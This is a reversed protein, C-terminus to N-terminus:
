DADKPRGPFPSRPAPVNEPPTAPATARAPQIVGWSRVFGPELAIRDIRLSLWTKGADFVPNIGTFMGRIVGQPLSLGNLVLSRCRFDIQSANCLVPVGALDFRVTLIGQRVRGTLRAERGDIKMKLGSLQRARAVLKFVELINEGSVFTEVRVATARRFRLLDQDLAAPDIEVDPFEFVAREITLDYYRVKRCSVTITRFRGTAADDAAFSVAISAPRPTIQAIQAVQTATYGLRDFLETARFSRSDAFARSVARELHLALPNAAPPLGAPAAASGPDPPTAGAPPATNTTPAPGPAPWAPLVKAGPAIPAPLRPTAWAAASAPAPYAVGAPPREVTPVPGPFRRGASPPRVLAAPQGTRTPSTPSTAVPAPQGPGAFARPSTAPASGTAVATATPTAAPAAQPSAMGISKAQAGTAALVTLLLLSWALCWGRPPQRLPTM